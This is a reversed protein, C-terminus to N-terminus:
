VLREERRCEPQKEAQVFIQCKCGLFNVGWAGSLVTARLETGWQRQVILLM